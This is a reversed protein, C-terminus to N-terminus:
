APEKIALHDRWYNSVFVQHPDMQNRLDMWKDFNPYQSRLYAAGENSDSNPLFKGWHPRFILNNKNLHNWLIPYFINLPSGPNDGFWFLDIRFVDRKYAASLWFDSAKAPYIEYAFNGVTDPNDAFFTRLNNLVTPGQEIPFWLETFWVPILFDSVRNDMPIGNYWVDQFTPPVRLGSSKNIPNLPVFINLLFPVIEDMQLKNLIEFIVPHSDKISTLWAQVDGFGRLMLNAGLEAPFPTEVGLIDILPIEQYENPVFGAQNPIAKAQWVVAKSVKQQPWWMIRKYDHAKFFDPLSQLAPKDGFLDIPCDDTTTTSEQGTINFNLVCQFTASVIVGFLGLGVGVAYFPNDDTNPFRPDDKTFTQLQAGTPGGTVLTISVLHDNFSSILSSGSSGTSLFGGVTQHIIGGLDPIAWGNLPNQPDTRHNDLQFLLSNEVTSCFPKLNELGSAQIPDSPDFGLHCGGQVTAQNLQDDFEVQIMKGMLLYIRGASAESELSTILPRSHAAGRLCIVKKEQQAQNVLSIVDNNNAPLFYTVGDIALSDITPNTPM